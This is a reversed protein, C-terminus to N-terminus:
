WHITVNFPTKNTVKVIIRDDEQAYVVPGPFMGNITVIDKSNCLKIVRKTQVQVTLLWYGNAMPTCQLGCSLLVHHLLAFKLLLDYRSIMSGPQNERPVEM